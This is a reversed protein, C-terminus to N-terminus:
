STYLDGLEEEDERDRRRRLLLIFLVAILLLLAAIIGILPLIFSKNATQQDVRVTCGDFCEIPDKGEVNTFCVQGNDLEAPAFVQCDPEGEKCDLWWASALNAETIGLAPLCVEEPICDCVVWLDIQNVGNSLLGPNGQDIQAAQVLGPGVMDSSVIRCGCDMVPAETPTPEEPPEDAPEDTSTPPVITDTATATPLPSAGPEPTDTSTPTESPVFVPTDTPIDTPTATPVDPTDTAVDQCDVPCNEANELASCIGDGCTVSVPCDEPCDDVEEPRCAGDGCWSCDQSCNWVGEGKETECVGNGCVWDEEQPPPPEPSAPDEVPCAGCDEPCNECDEYASDCYGDGCKTQLLVADAGQDPMQADALLHATIGAAGMFGILSSIAIVGLLALGLPLSVSQSRSSFMNRIM